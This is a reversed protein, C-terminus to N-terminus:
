SEAAGAAAYTARAEAITARGFDELLLKALSVVLGRGRFGAGEPINARGSDALLLNGPWVVV